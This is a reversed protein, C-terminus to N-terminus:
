TSLVDGGKLGDIFLDLRQPVNMLRKNAIECYEPSIEFGIFRRNLKKCAVATTGSGMFPDLIIKNEDTATKIIHMMLSIPKQTSHGNNKDKYFNINWVDTYGMQLNFYYRLDEYEKRLYEYEKRLYENNLFKRMKLYQEKTPFNYGLIWNSVCGTMGGTKSPFLKALERNTVNARKFEGRLYKAMPNVRAYEESLQMAGTPDDFTYFQLYETERPFSRLDESVRGAISQKGKAIIILQKHRFNTEIIIRSHLLALTGFSIHFFWFTGNGKLVRECEKTVSIFWKLYNPNNDWSDKHINYPFDTIVADISKDEIQKLGELCDMNYIRDLELM